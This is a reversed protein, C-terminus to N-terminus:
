GIDFIKKLEDGTDDVTNMVVIVPKEDGVDDVAKIVPKEDIKVTVHGKIGIVAAM